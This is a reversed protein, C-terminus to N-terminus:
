ISFDTSENQKRIYKIVLETLEKKVEELFKRPHFNIEQRIIYLPIDITNGIDVYGEEETDNIELTIWGYFGWKLHRYAQPDDWIQVDVLKYRSWDVGNNTDKELKYQFSLLFIEKMKQSNM